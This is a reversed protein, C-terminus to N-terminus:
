RSVKELVELIRDLRVRLQHLAISLGLSIGVLVMLILLLLIEKM